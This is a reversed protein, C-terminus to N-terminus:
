RRLVRADVWYFNGNDSWFLYKGEPSVMPGMGSFDMGGNGIRKAESWAGDNNKFSVYLYETFNEPSKPQADFLLYSEDPAIYPHANYKFRNVRSSLIQPEQLIGDKYVAATIVFNRQENRGTFYLSGSRARTMYMSFRNKFHGGLLKAESWGSGQREMVWQRSKGTNEENSAPRRSSYYLRKGDPSIHPEIDNYKGSFIAPVPKTWHGKQLRTVMITNTRLKAEGGRRTFYFETGDPSFTGAFEYGETSIIGPAFLEPTTGPPRQGLYPGKLLPFHMPTLKAGKHKLFGTVELHEGNSAKHIPAAGNLNKRHIDAGHKILMQVCLQHGQGAAAHLPTNGFGDAINVDMGKELLFLVLDGRDNAAAYHLISLENNGKEDLSCGNALLFKVVPTKGTSVAELLPTKGQYTKIDLPAKHKFLTKVVDLHGNLAAWHMPTRFDWDMLHLAAGGSILVHVAENRGKRAATHLPTCFNKDRAGVLGPDAALLKKLAAQDGKAVTDHIEGAEVGMVAVWVLIILFVYKM